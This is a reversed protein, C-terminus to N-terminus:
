AAETADPLSVLENHWFQYRRGDDLTVLIMPDAPYSDACGTGYQLETVTGSSGVYPACMKEDIDGPANPGVVNVRQGPQYPAGKVESRFQRKPKFIEGLSKSM